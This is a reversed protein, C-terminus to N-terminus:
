SFSYRPFEDVHSKKYSNLRSRLGIGPQPRGDHTLIHLACHKV